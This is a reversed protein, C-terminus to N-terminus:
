RTIDAVAQMITGVTDMAAIASHRISRRVPHRSSAAIAFGAAGGIVMGTIVGKAVNMIQKTMIKEKESRNQFLFATCKGKM